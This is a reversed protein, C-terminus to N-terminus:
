TETSSRSFLFFVDSIIIVQQTDQRASRVPSLLDREPLNVAHWLSLISSHGGVTLFLPGHSPSGSLGFCRYKLIIYSRVTLGSKIRILPKAAREQENEPSMRHIESYLHSIVFLPQFDFLISKVPFSECSPIISGKLCLMHRQILAHKGVHCAAGCKSGASSCRNFVSRSQASLSNRVNIRMGVTFLVYLLFAKHSMLDEWKPKM